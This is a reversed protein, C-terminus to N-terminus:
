WRMYTDSFSLLFLSLVLLVSPCSFPFNELVTFHHCFFVSLPFSATIFSVEPIQLSPSVLQNIIMFIYDCIIFICMSLSTALVPLHQWKWIESHYLYLLTPTHTHTHTYIIRSILAKGIHSSKVVIVALNLKSIQLNCSAKAIHFDRSDQGKILIEINTVRM